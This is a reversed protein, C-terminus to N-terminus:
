IGMTKPPFPRCCVVTVKMSTPASGTERGVVANVVGIFAVNMVGTTVPDKVLFKCGRIWRNPPGNNHKQQQWSSKQQVRRHVLM